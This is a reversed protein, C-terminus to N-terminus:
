NVQQLCPKPTGIPANTSSGIIRWFEMKIKFPITNQRKTSPSPRAPTVRALSNKTVLNAFFVLCSNSLSDSFGRPALGASSPNTRTSQFVRWDKSKAGSKLLLCCQIPILPSTKVITYLRKTSSLTGWFQLARPCLAPLNPAGALVWNHSFQLLNVTRKSRKPRNESLLSCNGYGKSCHSPDSWFYRMQRLYWRNRSDDALNTLPRGTWQTSQDNM